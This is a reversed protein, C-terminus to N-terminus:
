QLTSSIPARLCLKQLGTLAADDGSFLRDSAPWERMVRQRIAPVNQAVGGSWVIPSHSEQAILPLADLLGAVIRDIAENVETPAANRAFDRNMLQWTEERVDGYALNMAQALLRGAPLHTRAWLYTGNFFPRTQIAASGSVVDSRTSVQCGTALNVSVEGRRLGVGLLAAQQDGIGCYVPAGDFVRSTGVVKLKPAIDPFQHRRLKSYRLVEASWSGSELDVMGWSAADTIHISSARRETLAGCAFGIISTIFDFAGVDICRLSVLPLGNRIGEGLRSLTQEGLDIRVAESLLCRRDQWSILPRQAVGYQDVVALGAMQGSVLIGTLVEHIKARELARDLVGHIAESLVTPDIERELGETDLFGPIRERVISQRRIDSPKRSLDVVTAKVFTGGVDILGFYM